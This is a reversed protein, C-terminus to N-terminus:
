KRWHVLSQLEFRLGMSTLAGGMQSEERMSDCWMFCRVLYLSTESQIIDAPPLILIQAKKRWLVHAMM